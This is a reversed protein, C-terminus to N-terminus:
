NGPKKSSADQHITIRQDASVNRKRSRAGDPWRVELTVKTQDGLGFHIRPDHSSLYSGGSNRPRIWSKGGAEVKVIAGIADRNPSRGVLTVGLWHRGNRPSDNRLLAPRDNLNTVLLDIDGDNDFDAGAVGRGVREERMWPGASESGDVFGGKGNGLLLLDEHPELHHVDGNSVYLDLHTDLNFDAFVGGWGIYQGMAAAVGSRAAQNDFGLKGVNRYLCCFTMDPVFLDLRGDANYDAIEVGMAATADGNEGYALGQELAQNEFSGDGKNRFLFNEMADNSVFLDLHGDHDYDLTGIGMARGVPDVVIGAKETVDTFTGDGDARFLRDKQGNYALPGPFGDPAYFLKYDPDYDVYNGVYLDLHGDRNYDFFVAGVSFSPDDVGATKAVDIFTGDGNNRYLQNPGYNTVYIDTDGDGDYDAPLVGMGYAPKSLGARPTVDVFTGDGKNRYLRDSALALEKVKKEDLEPNSLGKRWYGNVLYIDIWGDGDYDLFGCGVGASEVINTMVDDGITEVFDIGAARTVDTFTVKGPESQALTTAASTVLFLVGCLNRSIWTADQHRHTHPKSKM